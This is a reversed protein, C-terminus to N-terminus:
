QAGGGIGPSLRGGADVTVHGSIAGTGGLTGRAKVAVAGSGTGSGATNAVLLAGCRVTTKGSYTNAGSLTTSGSNVEV